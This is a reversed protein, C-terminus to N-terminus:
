ALCHCVEEHASGGSYLEDVVEGFAKGVVASPAIWCMENRPYLDYLPLIMRHKSLQEQYEISASVPEV